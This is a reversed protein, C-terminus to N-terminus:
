RWRLHARARFTEAYREYALDAVADDLRLMAAIERYLERGQSVTPIRRPIPDAIMGDRDVRLGRPIALHSRLILM